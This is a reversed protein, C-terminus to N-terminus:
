VASASSSAPAPLVPPQAVPGASVAAPLEPLAGPWAPPQQLIASASIISIKFLLCPFCITTNVQYYAYPRGYYHPQQYSYQPVAAEPRQPPLDETPPPPKSPPPEQDGPPQHGMLDVFNSPPRCEADQLIHGLFIVVLHYWLVMKMQFMNLLASFLLLYYIYVM